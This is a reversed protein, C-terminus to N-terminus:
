KPVKLVEVDVVGDDLNKWCAKKVPCYTCPAVSKTFPRVPITQEKWNKYVSRMWDFVYNILDENSQNMNVPIILFSQDNKNEYLLFGQEADRLKMYILIQINHNPSPKMSSQKHM